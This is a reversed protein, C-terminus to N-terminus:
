VANKKECAEFLAVEEPTLPLIPHISTPHLVGALSQRVELIAQEFGLLKLAANVSEALSLDPEKLESEIMAVIDEWESVTPPNDGRREIIEDAYAKIPGYRNPRPDVGNAISCLLELPTIFRDGFRNRVKTIAEAYNAEAKSLLIELNQRETEQCNTKAANNKKPM